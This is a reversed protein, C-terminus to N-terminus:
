HILEDKDEEVVVEADEVVKDTELTLIVCNEDPEEKVNGAFPKHEKEEVKAKENSTVIMAATTVNDAGSGEEREDLNGGNPTIESM